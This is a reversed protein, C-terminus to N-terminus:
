SLRASILDDLLPWEGHEGEDAILDEYAISGPLEDSPSDGMVVWAEVTELQSALPAIVPVLDPDVFVVRDRAHNIIYSVQDGFLRINVTHCIRGTNATAWYLEHHRQNNWAFTGVADGVELGLSGLASALKRVRTDTSGYTQRSVSGDHEVSVIEQDPYLWVSQDYLTSLLLPFDDQMHPM